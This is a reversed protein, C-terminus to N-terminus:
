NSVYKGTEGTLALKVKGYLALIKYHTSPQSWKIIQQLVIAPLQHKKIFFVGMSNNYMRAEM